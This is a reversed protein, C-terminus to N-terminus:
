EILARTILQITLATIWSIVSTRSLRKFGFETFYNIIQGDM